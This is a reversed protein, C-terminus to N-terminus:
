TELKQGTVSPLTYRSDLSFNSTTSIVLSSKLISSENSLMNRNEFGCSERYLKLQLRIAYILKTTSSNNNDFVYALEGEAKNMWEGVWEGM